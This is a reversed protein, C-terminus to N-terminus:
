YVWLFDVTKPANNRMVKWFRVDGELNITVNVYYGARYKDKEQGKLFMRLGHIPQFFMDIEVM